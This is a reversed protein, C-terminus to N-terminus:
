AERTKKKPSKGLEFRLLDELLSFEFKFNLKQLGVPFVEQGSLLVEQGMQGLAMKIALKPITFFHPRHLVESLTKSLDSQLIPQPSVLDYIKESAEPNMLIELFAGLVDDQSIWSMPQQGSGLKGGLGLLTPLTLEKLAGGKSTLVVGIRTITVKLHEQNRAPELANEWAECVEGLFGGSYIGIASTSILKRPKDKLSALTKAILSTGLVRSDLVEKKFDPTWRHGAVNEGALHIVADLTRVKELDIEQTKPNWYIEQESAGKRRVFHKVEHGGTSLFASLASGIVGSAGTIGIKLRPQDLFKEHRGLDHRLRRERFQFTKELTRNVKGSFLPSLAPLLPGSWEIHDRLRTSNKEVFFQHHHKWQSFPGKLSIDTFDQSKELHHISKWDFRLPGVWLKFTNVMGESVAPVPGTASIKEFPPTLRAFAGPRLFWDVVM